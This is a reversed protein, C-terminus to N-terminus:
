SSTLYRKFIARLEEPIPESEQTDLDMFVTTIDATFALAGDRKRRADFHLLLSAKGIKKVFLSMVVYDGYKLPAKFDADIHVTPFGQRREDILEPYSFPAADDFFDEFAAHCLKFYQPYYVIGAGDVDDFRIKQVSTYSM